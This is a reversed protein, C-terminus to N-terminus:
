SELLMTLIVLYQWKSIIDWLTPNYILRQIGYLSMLTGVYQPHYPILNYPFSTVLPADQPVTGIERGYYVGRFGLKYYVSFNLIQGLIIAGVKLPWKTKVLISEHVYFYAHFLQIWRLMGCFCIFKKHHKQPIVKPNKYTLWYMAYNFILLATM